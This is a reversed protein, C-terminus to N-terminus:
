ERERPGKQPTLQEYRDWEAEAPTRRRGTKEQESRTGRVGSGNEGGTPDEEIRSRGEWVM